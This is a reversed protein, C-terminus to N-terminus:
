ALGVQPAALENVLRVTGGPTSEGHLMGDPVSVQHTQRIQASMELLALSDYGLDTYPTDAIDVDLDFEDGDGAASRM